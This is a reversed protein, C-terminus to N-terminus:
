GGKQGHDQKQQQQHTETALNQQDSMIQYRPVPQYQQKRNGRNGIGAQGHFEDPFQDQGIGPSGAGGQNSQVQWQTQQARGGGQMGQPVPHNVNSGGHNRAPLNPRRDQWDWGFRNSGYGGPQGPCRGYGMRPCWYGGGQETMSSKSVMPDHPKAPSVAVQAFNRQGGELQEKGSRRWEDARAAAQLGPDGVRATRLCGVGGVM